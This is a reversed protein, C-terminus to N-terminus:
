KRQISATLIRYIEALEQHGSLMSLHKDITHTDRRVAPGTQGPGPGAAIAKEITEIILPKLLDFSVGKELCIGEALTLMHNAFNNAFVAALHLYSKQDDSIPQVVHSIQHGLELLQVEIASDTATILIPTTEWPITHSYSFTQLPYFSAKRQFPLVDLASVGSCHVFIKHGDELHRLSSAVTAIADDRLTFFYLDAADMVLAPDHVLRANPLVASLRSSNEPTRNYIEIVRCGAQELRPMLNFALRGAGICVVNLM